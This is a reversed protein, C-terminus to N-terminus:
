PFKKAAADWPTSYGADSAAAPAPSPTRVPPIYSPSPSPPRVAYAASAEADDALLHSAVRLADVERQLQQLETEKRRLVENIDKM